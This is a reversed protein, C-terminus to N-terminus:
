SQHCIARDLVRYLYEHSPWIVQIPNHKDGIPVKNYRLDKLRLEHCRDGIM